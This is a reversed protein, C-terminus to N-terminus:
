SQEQDFIGELILRARPPVEEEPFVNTCLALVQSVSSLGLHAILVKIDDADRRRGALAKM